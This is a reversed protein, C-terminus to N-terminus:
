ARVRQDTFTPKTTATCSAAAVVASIRLINLRSRCPQAHRMNPAVLAYPSRSLVSVVLSPTVAGHDVQDKASLCMQKPASTVASSQNFAGGRAAYLEAAQDFLRRQHLRKRRAESPENPM